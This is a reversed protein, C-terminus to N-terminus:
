NIYRLSRPLSPGPSFHEVPIRQTCHVAFGQNRFAFLRLIIFCKLCNCSPLVVRPQLQRQNGPRGIDSPHADTPGLRSGPLHRPATYSTGLGGANARRAPLVFLPPRGALLLCLPVVSSVGPLSLMTLGDRSSSPTRSATASSARTRLGVM